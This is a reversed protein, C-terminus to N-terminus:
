QDYLKEEGVNTIYQMASKAFGSENITVVASKRATAKGIDQMSVELLAVPVPDGNALKYHAAARRMETQLRQSADQTLLCLRAKGERISALAADHGFSAKQAKRCLGLLQMLKNSNNM